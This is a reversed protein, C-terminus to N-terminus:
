GSAGIRRAAEDVADFLQDFSEVVFLVDQLRDIEFPQTIVADLTFPRRDCAPGLANAADASSSILGSGYVKVDGDERVLGFEITFWFLRAMESVQEDTRASAAAQGFRQLLDAFVPDAHLPVHGFVDHFIDPEPLYDLQAKPRVIVTTPFRRDALCNFFERSPIFGGVPVAAWGTRRALRANVDALDPVRDARLGIAEAGRLFVGSGTTRLTAMRREYLISWVEHDEATYAAWDQEIFTPLTALADDGRTAPHEHAHAHDHM